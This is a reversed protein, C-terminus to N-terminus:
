KLGAKEKLEDTWGLGSEGWEPIIDKTIFSGEPISRAIEQNILAGSMMTYQPVKEGM